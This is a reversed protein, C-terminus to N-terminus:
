EWVLKMDAYKGYFRLTLMGLGGCHKWFRAWAGQTHRGEGHEERIVLTGGHREIETIRKSDIRDRYSNLYDSFTMPACVM